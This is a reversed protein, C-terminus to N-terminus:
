SPIEINRRWHFPRLNGQRLLLGDQARIAALRRARRYNAATQHTGPRRDNVAIISGTAGPYSRRKVLRWSPLLM